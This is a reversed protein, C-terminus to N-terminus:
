YKYKDAAFCYLAEEKASDKDVIACDLIECGTFIGVYSLKKIIWASPKL